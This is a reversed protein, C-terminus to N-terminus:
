KYGVTIDQTGSAVICSGTGGGWTVNTTASYGQSPPATTAATGNWAFWVTQMATPPIQVTLYSAGTVGFATTTTGCTVKVFNLGVNSPVPSVCGAGSADQTGPAGGHTNTYGATGCGAGQVQLSQAHAAGFFLVALGATLMLKIM